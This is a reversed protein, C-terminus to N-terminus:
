VDRSLGAYGFVAAFVETVVQKVVAMSPVQPLLEALSTVGADQLGCPVIGSYATLDPAVNLAFGHTTMGGSIRVGVAVLKANGVWIGRNRRDRRAEIGWRAVSQLLTEEIANVYPVVRRAESGLRLVPYGVLQGPGHYTIDGGRATKEVAIGRALLKEQTWLLHSPDASRGLTFVPSHELLFLCDTASDGSQRARAAEEQLALARGYPVDTGLDIVRLDASFSESIRSSDQQATM